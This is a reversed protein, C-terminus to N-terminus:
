LEPYLEGWKSCPPALEADNSYGAENVSPACYILRDREKLSLETAQTFLLRLLLSRGRALRCWRWCVATAASLQQPTTLAGLCLALDDETLTDELM